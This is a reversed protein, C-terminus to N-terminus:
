CCDTFSGPQGGAIATIALEFEFLRVWLLLFSLLAIVVRSL